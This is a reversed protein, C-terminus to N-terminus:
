VRPQTLSYAMDLLMDTADSSPFAQLSKVAQRGHYVCLEHINDIIETNKLSQILLFCDTLLM